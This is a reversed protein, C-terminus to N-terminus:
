ALEYPVSVFAHVDPSFDKTNRTVLTLGHNIALAAQFANPLKWGYKRRLAAAIDADEAALPLNPFHRLLKTVPVLGHEDVGALVEARTIVSLRIERENDAIFETAARIGNLHDIVIVSDLLM